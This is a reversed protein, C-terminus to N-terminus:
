FGLGGDNVGKGIGVRQHINEQKHKNFHFKNMIMRTHYKYHLGHAYVIVLYIIFLDYYM